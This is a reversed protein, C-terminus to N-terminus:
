NFNSLFSPVVKPVFMVVLSRLPGCVFIGFFTPDIFVQDALIIIYVHTSGKGRLGPQVKANSPHGRFIAGGDGTPSSLTTNETLLFM